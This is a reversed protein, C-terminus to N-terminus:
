FSGEVTAVLARHVTIGDLTLDEVRVGWRDIGWTVVAATLTSEMADLLGLMIPFETVNTSLTAPRVIVVLEVTATKLGMGGTLAIVENGSTPLRPFMLPLDGDNVQQPPSTVAKRVGTVTLGAIGQVWQTYTTM